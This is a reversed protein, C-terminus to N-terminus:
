CYSQPSIGLGERTWRAPIATMVTIPTNCVEDISEQLSHLVQTSTELNPPYIVGTWQKVEPRCQKLYGYGLNTRFMCGNADHRPHKIDALPAFWITSRPKQIKYFGKYVTTPWQTIHQQHDWKSRALRPHHKNQVANYVPSPRPIEREVYMNPLFQLLSQHRSTRRKRTSYTVNRNQIANEIYELHRTLAGITRANHSRMVKLHSELDNWYIDTKQSNLQEASLIKYMNKRIVQLKRLETTYTSESVRYKRVIQQGLESTNQALEQWYSNPWADLEPNSLLTRFAALHQEAFVLEAEAMNEIDGPISIITSKRLYADQPVLAQERLQECYQYWLPTRAYLLRQINCVATLGSIIQTRQAQNTSTWCAEYFKDSSLAGLTYMNLLCTNKGEGYPNGIQPNSAIYFQLLLLFVSILSIGAAIAIQIRPRMAAFSAKFLALSFSGAIIHLIFIYYTRLAFTILEYFM